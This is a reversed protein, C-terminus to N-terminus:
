GNREARTAPTAGVQRRLTPVGGRSWRRGRVVLGSDRKGGPRARRFGSLRLGTGLESRRRRSRGMHLRWAVPLIHPHQQPRRSRHLELRPACRGARRRGADSPGLDSGNDSLCRSSAAAVNGRRDPDRDARHRQPGALREVGRHPRRERRPRARRRRVSLRRHHDCRGVHSGGCPPLVDARDGQRLRRAREGRRRARGAAIDLQGGCAQRAGVLGTNRSNALSDRRRSDNRHLPQARRRRRRPCQGRRHSPRLCRGHLHGSATHAPGVSVV